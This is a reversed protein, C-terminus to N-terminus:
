EAREEFGTFSSGATRSVATAELVAALGCVSPTDFVARVDIEFGFEAHIRAALQNALLSHGGLEFFSDDAGVTDRGLLRGYLAALRIETGTVPERYPLATVRVPEPLARRDLKGHETLPIADIVAFATPVMYEPLAAAAHARVSEVQVAGSEPVLYAALLPGVAADGALIVVCDRVEPHSTLAAQVEGLEIRYGRVKVQEDARGVFELEGDLDRRALDGTRYLRAGPFGPSAPRFPDAVFREATAPPRDLYGRALQPGGLYIEGIVGPPVLRLRDDLLYLDVNRNPRGIPVIRSGQPGEVPMHTSSVVAETPGYHNRLEADLVGAFRDAIEGLLAEGGVPVFRLTRWDSVQPMSLFTRLLSPVMHLVTIGYRSMLGAIYALDAFGGPRPIVLRAGLTLTVFVDLLSADFSVSSSQLLRDEATMGWQATFGVLHDAIAAHSVPVGKPRGTSGSTYIVYALNGPRLPRVRDADSPDQAGFGTAQEEAADLEVRGLVLRPNADSILFDIREDPYAPDIPLYAAGSKLVALVAVVFEVSNSLRLAVVDEAGVGQGILWHALRNARRNLARYTLEIDGSVQPAVLAVAAAAAHAREEFLAVLTTPPLASRDGHSLALLEARETVGLMDLEGLRRDPLAVGEALLRVYHTLLRDILEPAFSGTRYEAELYAGDGDRVVTLRLSVRPAPSGLELREAGVGDLAPGTPAKRVGFGLRVLHDLGDRDVSREPNVAHVVRDIGVRGHSEAQRWSDSVGAVFDQFATNSDVGARVLVSNGFYGIPASARSPASQEDRTSVPVSVLFDVAGTYRHTLVEFAALLVAFPTLGCEEAFEDVRTVLERPLERASRQARETEAGARGPLELPEPLPSLAGRWFELARADPDMESVVFDAANSDAAASAAVRVDRLYGTAGAVVSDRVGADSAFDTAGSSVSDSVRDDGSRNERFPVATGPDPPHTGPLAIATYPTAPAAPLRGNYATTLDRAFIEWSEDDWCLAHAVLVFAFEDAGTRFLAFRIPPTAAPDFPEACVRRILVEARRARRVPSLNSLDDERWDPAAELSVVQYPEGNTAGYTTRLIEHRAVVEGVAARLLATDLAGTLRYTVAVNLSTDAPERTQLFWARRQGPSLPRRMETETEEAAAPM